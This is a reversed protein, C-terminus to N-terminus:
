EKEPQNQILQWAVFSEVVEVAVLDVELVFDIQLCGIQGWFWDRVHAKDLERHM